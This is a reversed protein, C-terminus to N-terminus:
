ESKFYTDALTGVIDPYAANSLCHGFSEYIWNDSTAQDRFIRGSVYCLERRPKVLGTEDDVEDVEEATPEEWGEPKEIKNISNYDLTQSTEENIFRYQAHSFDKLDANEKRMDNTWVLFLLMVSQDKIQSLVIKIKKDDNIKLKPDRFDDVFELGFEGNRKNVPNVRALVQADKNIVVVEPFYMDKLSKYFPNDSVGFSVRNLNNMDFSFLPNDEFVVPNQEGEELADRELKEIYEDWLVKENTDFEELSGELIKLYKRAFPSIPTPVLTDFIMHVVRSHKSEILRVQDKKELAFQISKKIPQKQLGQKDVEDIM